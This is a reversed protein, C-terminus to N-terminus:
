PSPHETDNRGTSQKKAQRFEEFIAYRRTARRSLLRSIEVIRTFRASAYLTSEYKQIQQRAVGIESALGAQSLGSAIRARILRYAFNEICGLEPLRSRCACLDKYDHMDRELQEISRELKKLLAKAGPLDPVLEPRGNEPYCDPMRDLQLNALDLDSAPEFQAKGRYLSSARDLQRALTNRAKQLRRLQRQVRSYERETKIM